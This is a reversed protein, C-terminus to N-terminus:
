LYALKLLWLKTQSNIGKVKFLNLLINYMMDFSCLISTCLFTVYKSFVKSPNDSCSPYPNCLLFLLKISELMVLLKWANHLPFFSSRRLIVSKSLTKNQM